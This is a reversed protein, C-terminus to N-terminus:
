VETIEYLCIVEGFYSLLFYLFFKLEYIEKVKNMYSDSFGAVIIILKQPNKEDFKVM